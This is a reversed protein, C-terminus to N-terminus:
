IWGPPACEDFTGAAVDAEEGATRWQRFNQVAGILLCRNFGVAIDVDVDGEIEVGVQVM